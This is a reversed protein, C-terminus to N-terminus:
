AGDQSITHPCELNVRDFLTPSIVARGNVVSLWLMPKRCTMCEVPLPQGPPPARLQELEAKDVLESNTGTEILHVIAQGIIMTAAEVQEVQQPSMGDTRFGPLPVLIAPQGKAPNGPHPLGTSLHKAILSAVADNAM